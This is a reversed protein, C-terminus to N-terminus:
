PFFWVKALIKVILDAERKTSSYVSQLLRSFVDSFLNECFIGLSKKTKSISYRLLNRQKSENLGIFYFRSWKANILIDYSYSKYKGLGKTRKCFKRFCQVHSWRKVKQLEKVSVCASVLENNKIITFECLFPYKSNRFCPAWLPHFKIMCQLSIQWWFVGQNSLRNESIFM